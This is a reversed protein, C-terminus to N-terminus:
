CEAMTEASQEKGARHHRQDTGEAGALRVQRAGHGFPKADGVAAEDATRGKHQNLLIATTQRNIMEVGVTQAALTIEEVEASMFIEFAVADTQHLPGIANGATQWRFM